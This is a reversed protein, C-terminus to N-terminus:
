NVFQQPFLKQRVHEKSYKWTYALILSFQLKM